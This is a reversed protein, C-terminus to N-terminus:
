SGTAINKEFLIKMDFISNPNIKMPYLKPQIESPDGASLYFVAFRVSSIPVTGQLQTRRFEATPLYIQVSTSRNESGLLSYESLINLSADSTANTNIIQSNSYVTYLPLYEPVVPLSSTIIINTVDRINDYSSRYQTLTQTGPNLNNGFYIIQSLNAPFPSAVANIDYADFYDFWGRCGRNVGIYLMEGVVFNPYISNSASNLMNIISSHLTVSLLGNTGISFVPPHNPLGFGSLNTFATAYANNISQIIQGFEYQNYDYRGVGDYGSDYFILFVEESHFNGGVDQYCVIVSRSTSQATQSLLIPISTTSLSFKVVSCCYESPNQIFSENFQQQITIDSPVGSNNAVYVNLYKRKTDHM